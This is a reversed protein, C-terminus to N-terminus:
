EGWVDAIKAKIKEEHIEILRKNAEILRQKERISTSERQTTLCVEALVDRVDSEVHNCSIEVQVERDHEARHHEVGLGVTSMRRLLSCFSILHPFCYRTQESQHPFDTGAKRVGAVLTCPENSVSLNPSPMESEPYDASLAPGEVQLSAKDKRSIVALGNLISPSFTEAVERWIVRAQSYM